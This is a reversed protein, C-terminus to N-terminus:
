GEASPCPEEFHPSLAEPVDKQRPNDCGAFNSPCACPLGALAGACDRPIRCPQSSPRISLSALGMASAIPAITNTTAAAAM